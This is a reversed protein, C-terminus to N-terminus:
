YKIELTGSTSDTSIKDATLTNTTNLATISTGNCTLKRWWYPDDYVVTSISSGDKYGQNYADEIHKKFENVEMVIKNDKIEIIFGESDNLVEIIVNDGVLPHKFDKRFKGRPKSVYIKDDCFVDYLGANSRIIFGEKNM